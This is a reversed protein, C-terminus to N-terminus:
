SKPPKLYDVALTENGPPNTTNIQVLEVLRQLAEEGVADWDVLYRDQANVLGSFLLLCFTILKRM